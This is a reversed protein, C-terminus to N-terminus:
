GRIQNAAELVRLSGTGAPIGCPGRGPGGPPHAGEPDCRADASAAWGEMVPLASLGPDPPRLLAKALAGLSAECGTTLARGGPPPAAGLGPLVPTKVSEAWVWRLGTCHGCRGSCRGIKADWDQGPHELHPCSPSRVLSQLSSSVWPPQREGCPRGGM